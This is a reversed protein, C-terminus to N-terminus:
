IGQRSQSLTYVVPAMNVSFTVFSSSCDGPSTTTTNRLFKVLCRCSCKVKSREETAKAPLMSHKLKTQLYLYIQGQACCLSVHLLASVIGSMRLRPGLYLNTTLNVGLFVVAAACQIPPHTPELTPDAFKPSCVCKKGRGPILGHNRQRGTGLITIKSVVSKTIRHGNLDWRYSYTIHWRSFYFNQTNDVFHM